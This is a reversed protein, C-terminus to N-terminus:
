HRHTRSRAGRPKGITTAGTADKREATGGGHGRSHRSSQQPDFRNSCTTKAPHKHRGPWVGPPRLADGESHDWARLTEGLQQSRSLFQFREVVVSPKPTAHNAMLRKLDEYDLESPKNPAALNWFMMYTAPGCANLLIAQKMGVQEIDNAIFYLELREVYEM